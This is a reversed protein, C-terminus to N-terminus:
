YSCTIILTSEVVSFSIQSVQGGLYKESRVGEGEVEGDFGAEGV